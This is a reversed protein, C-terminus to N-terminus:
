RPGYWSGIPGSSYRTNAPNSYWNPLPQQSTPGRYNYWKGAVSGATGLLTSFAQSRANAMAAAGEARMNSAEARSAWAERAANDRATGVDVDTFFDTQTLIESPTGVGLDLGRSAMLGRQRGTLQSAQRQINQVNEEGRRQADEAAYEAMRANNEAVKQATQGQQYASAAGMIGAGATLGLTIAMPASLAAGLGLATAGAATGVGAATLSGALLGLTVPECM